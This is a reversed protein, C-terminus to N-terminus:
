WRKLTEPVELRLEVKSPKRGSGWVRGGRTIRNAISTNIIGTETGVNKMELIGEAYPNKIAELERDLDQSTKNM